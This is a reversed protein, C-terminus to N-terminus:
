TRRAYESNAIKRIQEQIVGLVDPPAFRSLARTV